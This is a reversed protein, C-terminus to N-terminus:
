LFSKVHKVRQLASSWASSWRGSGLFVQRLRNDEVDLYQGRIELLGKRRSLKFQGLSWPQQLRHYNNLEQLFQEKIEKEREELWAQRIVM